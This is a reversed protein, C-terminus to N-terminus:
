VRRSRKPLRRLHGPTQRMLLLYMSGLWRGPAYGYMQEFKENVYVFVGDEARVLNIGEAINQAIESQLQMAEEAQKRETIDIWYGLIEQPEGQENRQLRMEDRMWRYDGAKNRFRYEHAYGGQESLDPLESLVGERDAPHICEQWFNPDDTFECPEYGLQQRVNDSIFTAAYDGSAKSSYIVAPTSKILYELRQESSRLAQEYQKRETIDRWICYLFPKDGANLISLTVEM